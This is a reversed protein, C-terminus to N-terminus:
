FSLIAYILGTRILTENTPQTWFKQFSSVPFIENAPYQFSFFPFQFSFFPFHFHFSFIFIVCSIQFNFLTKMSTKSFTLVFFPSNFHFISLFPMKYTLIPLICSLIYFLLDFSVADHYDYNPKAIVGAM